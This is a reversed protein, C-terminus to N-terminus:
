YRRAPNKEFGYFPNGATSSRGSRAHSRIGLDLGDSGRRTNPLAALFFLGAARVLRRNLRDSLHRVPRAARPAHGFGKRRPVGSRRRPKSRTFHFPNWLQVPHRRWLLLPVRKARGSVSSVRGLAKLGQGWDLNCDVLYRYGQSPGGILPNFYSLYRPFLCVTEVIMWLTLGIGIVRYRQRLPWLGAFAGGIWMSLLPYLFLIRRIGNQWRAFSLLGLYLACPLLLWKVAFARQPYRHFFALSLGALVLILFPLPTKLIFCVTFFWKWPAGPNNSGRFFQGADDTIMESVDHFGQILRPLEVVRYAAAIVVLTGVVFSLLYFDQKRDTNPVASGIPRELGYLAGLIPVILLGSAKSALSLGFALGVYLAYLRSPTKLFRWYLYLTLISLAATTFDVTVLHSFELLPPCFCYFVLAVAAAFSGFVERSWRWILYGLGVGIWVVMFRSIDVLTDASYRNGNLLLDALSIRQEIVWLPPPYPLKLHMLALPWTAWLRLLPGNRPDPLQEPPGIFIGPPSISRSM